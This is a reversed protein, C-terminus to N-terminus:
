SEWGPLTWPPQRWEGNRLEFVVWYGTGCTTGCTQQTYVMAMSHHASFYVESFSNLGLAGAFKDCVEPPGKRQTFLSCDGSRFLNTEQETLLRYPVPLNWKGETLQVRQNSHQDFDDFVEKLQQRRDEPIQSGHDIAEISQRPSQILKRADVTSGEILWQKMGEVGTFERGPMLLSYIRYSDDAREDPMSVMALPAQAQQASIFPRGLVLLFVVAIYFHGM